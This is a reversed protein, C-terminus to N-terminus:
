MPECYWRSTRLMVGLGAVSKVFYYKKSVRVLHGTFGKFPGAVIRVAQGVTMEGNDPMSFISAKCKPDCLVRMETMDRNRIEYLERTDTRRIPSVPVPCERLLGVIEKQPLSKKLFVLNHIAPVLIRQPIEEDTFEDSFRMPIFNYLSRRNFFDTVKKEQKNYTRVAYWPENDLSYDTDRIIDAM